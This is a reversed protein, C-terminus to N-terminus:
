CNCYFIWVVLSHVCPFRFDIHLSQAPEAIHVYPFNLDLHLKLRTADPSLFFTLPPIQYTLKKQLTSTTNPEM